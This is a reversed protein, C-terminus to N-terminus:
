QGRVREGCACVCMCACILERGGGICMGARRVQYLYPFSNTDIAPRKGLHLKGGVEPVAVALEAGGLYTYPSNAVTTALKEM